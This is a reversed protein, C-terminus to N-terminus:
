RRWCNPVCSSGATTWSRGRVYPVQMRDLVRAVTDHNRVAVYDAAPLYHYSVGEDRYAHTPVILRGGTLERDLGGCSGFLIFKRSSFKTAMDEILGATFPAGVQTQVVGINTGKFAYVNIHVSVYHIAEEEVLELLDDELLANMIKCSFNLICVDLKRERQHHIAEPDIVAHRDPDFSDIISM